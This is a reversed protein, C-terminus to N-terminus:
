SVADYIQVREWLHSCSDVFVRHVPHIQYSDHASQDTFILTISVDYSHDIVPRRTPAPTGIYVVSIEEVSKLSELGTRLAELDERHEPHKLWFLVTHVFMLFPYLRQYSSTFIVISKLQVTLFEPSTTRLFLM